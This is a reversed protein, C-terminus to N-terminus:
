LFSAIVPKAANVIITRGAANPHVGDQYKINWDGGPVWTSEWGVNIVADLTGDALILDRYASLVTSMGSTWGGAVQRPIPTIVIVKNAGNAKLNTILTDLYGKATAASVGLAVDNTGAFVTCINKTGFYTGSFMPYVQTVADTTINDGANSGLTRSSRAVNVLRANPKNIEEALQSPWSKYRVDLFSDDTSYGGTISDGMFINQSDWTATDFRANLLDMMEEQQAQTMSPYVLCAILQSSPSYIGSASSFRGLRFDTIASNNIPATSSNIISRNNILRTASATFAISSVQEHCNSWMQDFTSSTHRLITLQGKRLPSGTNNDYIGFGSGFTGGFTPFRRSVDGLSTATRDDARWVFFFTCNQGTLFGNAAGLFGGNGAISGRLDCYIRGDPAELWSPQDTPTTQSATRSNGSQDRLEKFFAPRNPYTYDNGHWANITDVDLLGNDGFAYAVEVSDSRRRLLVGKTADGIADATLAETAWVALPSPGTFEDVPYVTQVAQITPRNFALGVALGLAPM